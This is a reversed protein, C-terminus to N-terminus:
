VYQVTPDADPDVNLELTTPIRPIIYDILIFPLSLDLDVECNIMPFDLSGWSISFYRLSVVVKPNLECNNNLTSGRLKTKYWFFNSATTKNDNIRYNDANNEIADNNGGQLLEDFKRHDYIIITLISCCCTNRCLFTCVETNGIFTKKTKVYAHLLYFM